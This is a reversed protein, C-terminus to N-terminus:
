ALLFAEDGSWQNEPIINTEPLTDMKTQKPSTKQHEM